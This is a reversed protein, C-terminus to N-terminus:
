PWFDKLTLQAMTDGDNAKKTLWEKLAARPLEAEKSGNQVAKQFYRAAERMDPSPIAGGVKFDVPSYLQGLKLMATKDGKSAANELLLVGDDAQKNALRRDAEKVILATNPAKNIVDTVTMKELNETFQPPPQSPAPPPPPSKKAVEKDKNEKKIAQAKQPSPKQYYGYWIGACAGLICIGFIASLIMPLASRKQKIEDVLPAEEEIHIPAMREPISNEEVSPEPVEDMELESSKEEKPPITSKPATAVVGKQGSRKGVIEPWIITEIINLEPIKLQCPSGPELIDALSDADLTLLLDDGRVEQHIIPQSIIAPFQPFAITLNTDLQGAQGIVTVIAEGPSAANIKLKANM